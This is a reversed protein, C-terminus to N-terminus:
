RVPEPEATRGRAGVTGVATFARFDPQPAFFDNMDTALLDGLALPPLQLIQEATKLVSVTSLHQMGVFRRKAYPSVVLAFSRDGDVHDRGGQTDAGLIFVVTHRWSPLRGLYQVIAGLARDSDAAADPAPPMEPDGAARGAPLWVATYRPERGSAVLRGYDRVFERARREDAIRPNWGPYNLDIQGDLVAPAPVDLAYRGGLGRAPTDDNSAIAPKAPTAEAAEGADCGALGILEGYDRFGIAHRELNNFIYGARPYDEPVEAANILV